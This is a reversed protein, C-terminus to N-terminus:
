LFGGHVLSNEPALRLAEKQANVATLLHGSIVALNTIYHYVMPSRAAQNRRAAEDLIARDGELAQQALAKGLKSSITGKNNELQPLISM